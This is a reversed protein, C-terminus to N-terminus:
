KDALRWQWRAAVGKGASIRKSLIGMEAKVKRLTRTGVGSKTAEDILVQADVPGNKLAATLLARADASADREDPEDGGELVEELHRDKRAGFKAVFVSGSVEELTYPVVGPARGHNGAVCALYCVAPNDVDREVRLVSRCVAAIAVSGLGHELLSGARGKRLHRSLLFTVCEEHAVRALSELYLRTSQEHRTDLTVDGLASYPDVVVCRARTLRVIQRLREEQQPMILRGDTGYGSVGVSYIAKRDGGNAIWRSLVSGGFHEESGFWLCVGKPGASKSEPLRKGNCMAAAISAMVSSKGTGKHGDLLNLANRVVMGPWDWAVKETKVQGGHVLGLDDMSGPQDANTATAPKKRGM